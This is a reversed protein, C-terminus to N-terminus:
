ASPLGAPRRLRRFHKKPGKRCIFGLSSCLGTNRSNWTLEISAGAVTSCIFCIIIFSVASVRSLAPACFISNENRWTVGCGGGPRAIFMVQCSWARKENSYPWCLCVNELIRGRAAGATPHFVQKESQRISYKAATSSSTAKKQTTVAMPREAITVRPRCAIAIRGFEGCSQPCFIASFHCCTRRM